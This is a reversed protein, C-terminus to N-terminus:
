KELLESDLYDKLYLNILLLQILFGLMYGVSKAVNRQFFAAAQWNRPVLRVDPMMTTYIALIFSNVLGLTFVMPQYLIDFWLHNQSCNKDCNKLATYSQM